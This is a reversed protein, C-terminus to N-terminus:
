EFHGGASANFLWRDELGFVGAGGPDFECARRNFIMGDKLGDKADCAQLLSNVILKRDSVSFVNRRIPSAATM